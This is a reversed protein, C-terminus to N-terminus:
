GPSAAGNWWWRVGPNARLNRLWQSREGRLTAVLLVAGIRMGLLPVNYVRGSTRGRIELVAPGIPLLGPGLLGARVLPEVLANLSRFLSAEADRLADQTM